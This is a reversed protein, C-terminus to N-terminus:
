TNCAVNCQLLLSHRVYNPIIYYSNVKSISHWEYKLVEKGLNKRKIQVLVEKKTINPSQLRYELEEQAQGPTNDAVQRGDKAEPLIEDSDWPGRPFTSTKTM